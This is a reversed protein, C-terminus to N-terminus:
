PLLGKFWEKIKSVTDSLNSLKLFNGDRKQQSKLEAGWNVLGLATTFGPDNVKDIATNLHQPYGISAPLRFKKKAVEVIGPLKAGGGTLVIGAPLLGSREIKILEKDVLEFIEELRAEIIESIYKLSVRGEEIDSFEKLDIEEKKGIAGPQAQGHEIKIDEAIDLSTRLGIAIDSTIHASGLPVVATALIDGEEFVALSTTSDGINVLAVGLEKQKKTLTSEANALIGLVLDEIEVGTRYVAKTLNRIQSSLGQIIQAEVELRVGTMGVPDKIGTQNDVTFVKPIVHLIEYNPPTSVTQAAEIAREVEDEKIEGDAKSVAIVGRSLQTTIHTGSIGVFVKNLPFGVMREAQELCGSISSVAEEISTIVGKSIGEAPKEAAGIIYLSEQNFQGVVVRIMSTGVDLGVISSPEKSMNKVTDM